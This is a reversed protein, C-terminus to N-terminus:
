DQVNNESEALWPYRKGLYKVLKKRLTKGLINESKM